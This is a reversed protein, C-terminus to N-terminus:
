DHFGAAEMSAALIINKCADFVKKINDPDTATTIHIHIKKKKANRALFLQELFQYAAKLDHVPATPFKIPDIPIQQILYKKEFLDKKNLFLIMDIKEFVKM